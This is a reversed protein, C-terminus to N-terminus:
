SFLSHMWNVMRQLHISLFRECQFRNNNNPLLVCYIGYFYTLIEHSFKTNFYSHIEYYFDGKWSRIIPINENEANLQIRLRCFSLNTYIRFFLSFHWKWQFNSIIYFLNSFMVLSYTTPIARAHLIRMFGCCIQEINEILKNQQWTLDWKCWCKVCHIRKGFKTKQCFYVFEWHIQKTCFLYIAILTYMKTKEKSFTWRLIIEKAKGVAASFIISCSISFTKSSVYSAFFFVKLWNIQEYVCQCDYINLM